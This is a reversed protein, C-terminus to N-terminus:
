DSSNKEEIARRKARANKRISRSQDDIALVDLPATGINYTTKGFGKADRYIKEAGLGTNSVNFLNFNLLRTGMSSAFDCFQQMGYGVFFMALLLGVNGLPMSYFGPSSGLALPVYFYLNFLCYKGWPFVLELWCIQCAAIGMVAQVLIMFILRFLSIATFIFIPQILLAMLQKLWADFFTKTYQFLIMPLFIPSLAVTVTLALMGVCYLLLVKVVVMGYMIIGIVIMIAPIFFGSIILGLIRNWFSWSFFLQLDREMVCLMKVAVAQDEFCSQTNANLGAAVSIEVKDLTFINAFSNMVEFSFFKFLYQNFFEFSNDSLLMIVIAIKFIRSVGEKQNIQAIGVIFSLGLFAVYLVLILKIITLYVHSSQFATYIKEVVNKLINEFKKRIGDLTLNSANSPSLKLNYQGITNARSFNKVKMSKAESDSLPNIRLYIKGKAQELNSSASALVAPDDAIGLEQPLQLDEKKVNINRSIASGSKSMNLNQWSAYQTMYMRFNEPSTNLVAENIITYQIREGSKYNCGRWSVSVLYGGDGGNKPYELKIEQPIDSLGEVQGSIITSRFSSESENSVIPKTFIKPYSVYSVRPQLGYNSKLTTSTSCDYSSCVADNPNQQCPKCKSVKQKKSSDSEDNINKKPVDFNLQQNDAYIKLKYDDDVQTNPNAHYRGSYQIELYDGNKVFIDTSIKGNSRPNFTTSTPAIGTFKDNGRWFVPSFIVTNFGCLYVNNGSIKILDNAQSSEVNMVSNSLAVVVKSGPTVSIGGDFYSAELEPTSCIKGDTVQTSNKNDCALDYPNKVDSYIDCLWSQPTKEDDNVPTYLKSDLKIPVRIKSDFQEGNFCSRLCNEIRDQNTVAIQNITVSSNNDNQQGNSSQTTLSKLDIKFKKACYNQCNNYCVDGITKVTVTQSPERTSGIICNSSSILSDAYTTSFLITFVFCILALYGNKM